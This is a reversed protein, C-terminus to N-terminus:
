LSPSCKSEDHNGGLWNKCKKLERDIFKKDNILLNSGSPHPLKFHELNLRNLEKSAENGLAIFRPTVCEYMYDRTIKLVESKNIMDIIQFDIQMKGIWGMLRAYSQTGLFARDPYKNKKSPKDGVFIVLDM